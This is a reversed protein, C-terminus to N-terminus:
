EYVRTGTSKHSGIENEVVVFYEEEGNVEPLYDSELGRAELWDCEDSCKKSFAKKSELNLEKVLQNIKSLVYKAKEEMDYQKYAVLSIDNGWWGGEEPGGYYPTKVYLSVYFNGTWKSNDCINFFVDKITM